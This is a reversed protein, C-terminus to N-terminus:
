IYIYIYIYTHTGYVRTFNSNHEGVNSLKALFAGGQFVGFMVHGRSRLFNKVMRKRCNLTAMKPSNGCM